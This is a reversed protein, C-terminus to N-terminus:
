AADISRKFEMELAVVAKFKELERLQSILEFVKKGKHYSGVSINLNESVEQIVRKGKDLQYNSENISNNM